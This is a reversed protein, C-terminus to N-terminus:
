AASTLLKRGSLREYIKQVLRANPTQVQGSMYNRISFVSCGVSMSFELIDKGHQERNKPFRVHLLKRTEEVLDTDYKAIPM